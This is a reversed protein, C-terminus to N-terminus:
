QHVANDTPRPCARAEPLEDPEPVVQERWRARAAYVGHFRITNVRPRPILGILKSLFDMVEFVVATTGDRWTRKLHLVVRGDPLRELHNQALPPRLIYRALREVADRDFA